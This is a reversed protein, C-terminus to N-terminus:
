HSVFNERLFVKVQVNDSKSMWVPSWSLKIILYSNAVFLVSFPNFLSINCCSIRAHLLMEIWIVFCTNCNHLRSLISTQVLVSLVSSLIICKDLSTVTYSKIAIIVFIILCIIDVLSFSINAQIQMSGVALLYCLACLIIAMPALNNTVRCVKRTKHPKTSQLESDSIFSKCICQNICSSPSKSDKLLLYM